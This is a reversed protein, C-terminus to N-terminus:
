NQEVLKKIFEDLKGHYELEYESEHNAFYIDGFHEEESSICYYNGSNDSVIPLFGKEILEKGAHINDFFDKMEDLGLIGRFMIQLGNPNYEKLFERYFKPIKLNIYKEFECIEEEEAGNFTFLPEGILKEYEKSKSKSIEIFESLLTKFNTYNMEKM